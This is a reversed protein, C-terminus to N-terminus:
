DASTKIAKPNNAKSKHPLRVFRLSEDFLSCKCHLVVRSITGYTERALAVREKM